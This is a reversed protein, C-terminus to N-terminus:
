IWHHTLTYGSRLTEGRPRWKSCSARRKYTKRPHLAHSLNSVLAFGMDMGCGGIRVGENRWPYGLVSCALGTITLYEGNVVIGLGIDRIM